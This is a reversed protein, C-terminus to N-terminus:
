LKQDELMSQLHRCAEAVHSPIHQPVQFGQSPYQEIRQMTGVMEVVMEKWTGYGAPRSPYRDLPIPPSTVMIDVRDADDWQRLFTALSRRGMFPTQVLIISRSPLELNNTLLKQSFRINEGTNTAEQELLISRSPVGKEILKEAFIVAEPKSWKGTLFSIFTILMM